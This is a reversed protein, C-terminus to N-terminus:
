NLIRINSLNNKSIIQIGFDEFNIKYFNESVSTVIGFGFSTHFIKMGSSIEDISEAEKLENFNKRTPNKAMSRKECVYEVCDEPIDDIFSSPSCEIIEGYSMRNRAYSIFLREKARTIAVYFLRREENMEEVSESSSIHPLLGEVVGVVFVVPFELGKANHITMLSVYNRESEDGIEDASTQLTIDNIYDVITADPKGSEYVKISNILEEVNEWREEGNEEYKLLYDRYNISDILIKVFNAPSIEEKSKNLDKAIEGLEILSSTCSKNVRDLNEANCIIEIIPFGQDYLMRIKNITAEGVGRKPVDVIREFSAWDDPNIIFKIYALIDKIEKRAYFRQGGFVKYKINRFLLEEEFIRSQANTRYFIAIDNYDYEGLLEDIKNVVWRAEEKDTLAEYIEIKEGSEKETWLRKQMRGYIKVVVNNAAELIIPTSRYNQELAIVRANYRDKFDYINNINAGRWGYISQDDDGVVCINKNKEAILSLLKYQSLNTDQFEDIMLYHWLNQYKKLIEPNELFLKIPLIILDSFDVAKSKRLRKEYEDYVRLVIEDFNSSVMTQFKNVDINDDKLSSIKNLVIAPSIKEKSYNFEKLITSILSKSDLEDYVVFDKPYSILHSNQRLLMLGTSHFTRIWVNSLDYGVLNSIRSKMEFAAKNTFTVALINLPKLGKERLLYAFRHTIVRTKGSGAGALVLLAGETNLVAERQRDNLLDLIPDQM